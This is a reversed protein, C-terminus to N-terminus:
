AGGASIEVVTAAVVVVVVAFFVVVLLDPENGVVPDFLLEKSNIADAKTTPPPAKSPGIRRRDGLFLQNLATRM